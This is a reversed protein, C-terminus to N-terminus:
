RFIKEESIEPFDLIPLETRLHLIAQPRGAQM